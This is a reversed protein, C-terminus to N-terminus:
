VDKKEEVVEEFGEPTIHHRLYEILCDRDCFTKTHNKWETKGGLLTVSLTISIGCNTNNIIEKQTGCFNCVNYQVIM